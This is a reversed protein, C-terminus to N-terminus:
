GRGMEPEQVLADGFVVGLGTLISRGHDPQYRDLMIQLMELKGEITDFMHRQDDDLLRRFLTRWITFSAEEDPTLERFYHDQGM